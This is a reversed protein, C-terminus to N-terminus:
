AFAQLVVEACQWKGASKPGPGVKASSVKALWHFGSFTLNKGYGSQAMAVGAPFVALLVLAPFRTM